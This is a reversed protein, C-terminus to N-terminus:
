HENLPWFLTFQGGGMLGLITLGYCLYYFLTPVLFLVLANGKDLSPPLLLLDQSQRALLFTQLVMPSKLSLKM